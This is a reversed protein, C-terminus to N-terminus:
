LLFTRAHLKPDQTSGGRVRMERLAGAQAEGQRHTAVSRVRVNRMIEEHNWGGSEAESLSLVQAARWVERRM